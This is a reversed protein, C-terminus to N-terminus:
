SRYGYCFYSVVLAALTVLLYPIWKLPQSRAYKEALVFPGFTFIAFISATIGTRGFVIGLLGPISRPIGAEDEFRVPGRFGHDSFPWFFQVGPSVGMLFDALPHSVAAFLLAAPLVWGGRKGGKSLVLWALAAFGAAFLLSHSPGRHLSVGAPKLLISYVLDFDPLNAMIIAGITVSPSCLLERYKGVAPARVAAIAILSHGVIEPM